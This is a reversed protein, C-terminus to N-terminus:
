GRLVQALRAAFRLKAPRPSGALPDFGAGAVADLAAHGGAVFGAIAFRQRGSLSAVLPQGSLLLRRARDVQFAMLARLPAAAPGPDRLRAPSVGFLELDTAPLYTRGAVADEAVDQWHEALQLATCISDSWAVREPTHSGFADLVLRGVPNASLSCYHLLEEYTAYSRVLQDQRNAELLDHLPQPDGGRTAAVVRVVAPHRDASHNGAWEDDLESALWDLALLRDGAYSDGVEDVLRAWGYIAMLHRRWALPLVRSAVPFNETGARRLLDDQRPLSPAPRPVARGADTMVPATM